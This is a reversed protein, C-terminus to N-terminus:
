FIKSTIPVVEYSVKGYGGISGLNESCTSRGASISGTEIIGLSNQISEIRSKIFRSRTVSTSDDLTISSKEINISIREKIIETSGSGKSCSLSLLLSCYLISTKLFSM